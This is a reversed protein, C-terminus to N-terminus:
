LVTVLLRALLGSKLFASHKPWWSVDSSQCDYRSDKYVSCIIDMDMESLEDDWWDAENVLELYKGQVLVEESPGKLVHKDDARNSEM